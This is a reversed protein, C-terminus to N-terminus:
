SREKQLLPAWRAPHNNKLEDGLTGFLRGQAYDFPSSLIIAPTRLGGSIPYGWEGEFFGQFPTLNIATPTLRRFSAV